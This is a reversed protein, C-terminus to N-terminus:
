FKITIIHEYNKKITSKYMINKHVYFNVAANDLSFKALQKFYMNRRHFPGYVQMQTSVEYITGTYANKDVMDYQYHELYIRNKDTGNILIPQSFEKDKFDQNKYDRLTTIIIGDVANALQQVLYKQDEDTEAFTFYEDCAVAITSSKPEINDLDILDYVCGHSNLYEQIEESIHAARFPISGMTLMWPNFGVFLMNDNATLDYYHLIEDLINQKKSLVDASRQNNVFGNFLVDSYQTFSIM